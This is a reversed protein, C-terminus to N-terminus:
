RPSGDENQPLPQLNNHALVRALERELYRVRNGLEHFGQVTWDHLNWHRSQLKFLNLLLLVGLCYLLFIIHKLADVAEQSLVM